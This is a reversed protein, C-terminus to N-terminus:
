NIGLDRVVWAERTVRDLPVGFEESIMARLWGWAEEEDPSPDAHAMIYAHLDGVSRMPRADADSIAFGYRAEINMVLQVVDLGM